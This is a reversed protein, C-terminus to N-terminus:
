AGIAFKWAQALTCNGQAKGCRKHEDHDNTVLARPHYLLVRGKDFM